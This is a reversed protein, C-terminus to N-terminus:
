RPAGWFWWAAAMAVLAVLFLIRGGRRVDAEAQRELIPRAYNFADHSVTVWAWPQDTAIPSGSIFAPRPVPENDTIRAEIAEELAGRAHWLANARDDGFTTLEPFDDSTVLITGNDDPTLHVRYCPDM